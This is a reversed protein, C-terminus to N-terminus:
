QHNTETSKNETKSETKETKDQGNDSHPKGHSSKRAYDTLYFGSGKFIIGAGAGIRRRVRQEGCEPCVKVPEDSMAQFRNFQNGCAECVYSYTPM